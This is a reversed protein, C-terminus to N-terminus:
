GTQRIRRSGSPLSFVMLQNLPLFVSDGAGLANVLARSSVVFMAFMIGTPGIPVTVDVIDVALWMAWSPM